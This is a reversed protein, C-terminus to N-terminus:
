GEFVKHRSIRRNHCVALPTSDVFTIGTCRGKRTHLYGCLPVLAQPMLEVFRSYSVLAPFYPRLHVAVYQTYYRKFDRYGSSHFFVIITMIESLTLHGPRVRHRQGDQLLRQMYLPEFGKCFDDIDCFMAILQSM